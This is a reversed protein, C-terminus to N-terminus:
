RRARRLGGALAIPDSRTGEFSPAPPFDSLKDPAPFRRLLAQISRFINVGRGQTGARLAYFFSRCASRQGAGRACRVKLLDSRHGRVAAPRRTQTPTLRREGRPYHLKMPRTDFQEHQL